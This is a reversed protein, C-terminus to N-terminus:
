GNYGNIAASYYYWLWTLDNYLYQMSAKQNNINLQYQIAMPWIKLAALQNSENSLQPSVPSQM